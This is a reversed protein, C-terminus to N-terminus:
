AEVGKSLFRGPDIGPNQDLVRIADVEPARGPLSSEGRLLQDAPHLEGAKVLDDPM